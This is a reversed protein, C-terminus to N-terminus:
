AQWLDTKGQADYRIFFLDEPEGDDNFVEYFIGEGTLAVPLTNGDAALVGTSGDRTNCAYLRGSDNWNTYFLIGENLGWGGTDTSIITKIEGTALDFQRIVSEDGEPGVLKNYEDFTCAEKYTRYYISSGDSVHQFVIDDILRRDNQGDPDCVHLRCHDHDDQYVLQGNLIYPFYVPKREPHNRICLFFGPRM